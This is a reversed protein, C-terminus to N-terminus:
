GTLPVQPSQLRCSDDGWRESWSPQLGEMAAADRSLGHQNERRGPLGVIGAAGKERGYSGGEVQDWGQEWNGKKRHFERQPVMFFSNEERSECLNM